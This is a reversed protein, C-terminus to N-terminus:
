GTNRNRIGDEEWCREVLDEMGKKLGYNKTGEKGVERRETRNLTRPALPLQCREVEEKYRPGIVLGGLNSQCGSLLM